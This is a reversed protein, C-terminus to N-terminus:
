GREIGGNYESITRLIDCFLDMESESYRNRLMSDVDEAMGDFMDSVASVKPSLRLHYVRGDTDSQTKEVLGRKALAGVKITAGSKTIHLLEALKSITCNETYAIINLYLQDHYSMGFSHDSVNLMRLEGLSMRYYFYNLEEAFRM